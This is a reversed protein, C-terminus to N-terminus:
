SKAVSEILGRMYGIAFLAGINSYGPHENSDESMTPVHDPRIPGKFGIEYYTKMAEYMDTKGDDHFTEEFNQRSGRVDRFHVFHIKERKGFYRIVSPIDEGMTAFTGQCLTIGNSPSPVIDILRKFADASTMIRAIGRISDVPPDDPHLALKVGQKEAEPVVAKLFYELNKWMVDKTFTGYNTVSSDKIDDYDFASVLAGGRSPRDMTTRAWSIVPMWNYCITDIGLRSINRILSIFNDIEQDKGDLGLKTKEYLAPPGEIVKLKLGVNEWAEKVAKVAAYDWSNVGSLGVSKPNIGGVAGLVKMQKSLEIRRKDMGFFHALCFQMGGDQVYEKKLLPTNNLDPQGSVTVAALAASNRIFKRRSSEM